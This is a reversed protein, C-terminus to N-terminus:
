KATIMFRICSSSQHVFLLLTKKKNIKDFAGGRVPWGVLHPHTSREDAQAQWITKTNRSFQYNNETEIKIDCNEFSWYFSM